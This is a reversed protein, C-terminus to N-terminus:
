TLDSRVEQTEKLVNNLSNKIRTMYHKFLKTAAGRKVRIILRRKAYSKEILKMGELINSGYLVHRKVYGLNNM